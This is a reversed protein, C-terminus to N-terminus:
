HLGFFSIPVIQQYVRGINVFSADRIPVEDIILINVDSKTWNTAYNGLSKGINAELLIVLPQQAPYACLQLNEAISQGLLRVQNISAINGMIQICAGQERRMALGLAAQWQESTAHVSLKSVIPVDYLPLYEPKPLFLTTGSIQTSHLTLGYVTARGRNEPSYTKLSAALIPSAVIAKALDIGFDGFFTTSPWPKGAQYDYILEGVGGSFTIKAAHLHPTASFPVQEHLKSVSTLFFASDGLVIAELAQCYYTIIQKCETANLTDGIGKNIRLADLLAVGYPSIAILQYGGPVLQFHRAGIFYCGTKLVNGQRGLAVNTTGGGIDLNLFAYQDHMRSLAACSGMFALWSELCPDQATAIVSEGVLKRILKTILEVNQSQAALGTIMSAGAFIAHKDNTLGSQALWSTIMATLARENINKDNFPTFVPTPKFVVQPASFEMHGTICNSSIEAEAILASSTTSGFDLGLLKVRIPSSAM